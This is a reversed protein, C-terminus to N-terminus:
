EERKDGRGEPASPWPSSFLVEGRQGKGRGPRECGRSQSRTGAGVHLRRYSYPNTEGRLRRCTRSQGNLGDSWQAREEDSLNLIRNTAGPIKFAGTRDHNVLSLPCPRRRISKALTINEPDSSLAAAM